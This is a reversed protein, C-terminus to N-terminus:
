EENQRKIEKMLIERIDMIDKETFGYKRLIPSLGNPMPVGFKFKETNLEKNEPTRNIVEKM